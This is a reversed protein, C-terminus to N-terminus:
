PSAANWLLIDRKWENAERLDWLYKWIHNRRHTEMRSQLSDWLSLPKVRYPNRVKCNYFHSIQFPDPQAATLTIVPRREKRSVRLSGDEQNGQSLAEGVKLARWPQDLREELADWQCQSQWRKKGGVGWKPVRIIHTIYIIHSPSDPYNRGTLTWPNVIKIGNAAETRSQRM